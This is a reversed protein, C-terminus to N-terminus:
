HPSSTMNFKKLTTYNHIFYLDNNNRPDFAIAETEPFDIINLILGDITDIQALKFPGTGGLRGIHYLKRDSTSDAGFTFLGTDGIDEVSCASPDLQKLYRQDNSTSGFYENNEGYSRNVSGLGVAAIAGILLKTLGNNREM